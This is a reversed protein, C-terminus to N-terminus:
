FLASTDRRDATSNRVRSPAVPARATSEPAPSRPCPTRTLPTSPPCPSRVGGPVHTCCVVALSTLLFHNAIELRHLFHHEAPKLVIPLCFPAGLRVPRDFHTMVRTKQAPLLKCLMSQVKGGRAWLRGPPQPSAVPPRVAAQLWSSRTAACDMARLPECARQPPASTISLSAAGQIEEKSPAAVLSGTETRPARPNTRLAVSHPGQRATRRLRPTFLRIRQAM